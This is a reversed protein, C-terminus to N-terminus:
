RLIGKTQGQTVFNWFGHTEGVDIAVADSFTGVPIVQSSLLRM